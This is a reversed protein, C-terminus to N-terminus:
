QSLDSSCQCYDPREHDEEKHRGTFPRWIAMFLGWVKTLQKCVWDSDFPKCFSLPINRDSAEPRVIGTHAVCVEFETLSQFYENIWPRPYYKGHRKQDTLIYLMIM